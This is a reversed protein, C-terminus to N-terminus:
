ANLAMQGKKYKKTKKALFNNGEYEYQENDDECSISSIFLLFYFLWIAFCLLWSKWLVIEILECVNIDIEFMLRRM